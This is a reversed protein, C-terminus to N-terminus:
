WLIDSLLVKFYINRSTTSQLSFCHTVIYFQKLLIQVKQPYLLLLLKLIYQYKWTRSRNSDAYTRASVAMYELKCCNDFNKMTFMPQPSYVSFNNSFHRISKSYPHATNVASVLTCLLIFFIM